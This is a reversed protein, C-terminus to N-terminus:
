SRPSPSEPDPKDAAERIADWLVGAATVHDPRYDFSVGGKANPKTVQYAGDWEKRILARTVMSVQADRMDLAVFLADREALLKEVGKVLRRCDHASLRVSEGRVPALRLRDILDDM